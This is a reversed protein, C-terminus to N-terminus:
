YPFLCISTDNFFSIYPPILLIIEKHRKRDCTLRLEGIDKNEKEMERERVGRLDNLFSTYFNLCDNDGVRDFEITSLGFWFSFNYIAVHLYHTTLSDL